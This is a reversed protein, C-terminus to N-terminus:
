NSNTKSISIVRNFDYNLKSGHSLKSSVLAMKGAKAVAAKKDISKLKV